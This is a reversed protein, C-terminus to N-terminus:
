FQKLDHWLSDSARYGVTTHLYEPTLVLLSVHIREIYTGLLTKICGRKGGLSLYFLLDGVSCGVETCATIEGGIMPPHLQGNSVERSCM